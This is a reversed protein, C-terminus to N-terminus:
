VTGEVKQVVTHETSCSAWPGCLDGSCSYKIDKSIKFNIHFM